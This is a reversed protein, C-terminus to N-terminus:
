VEERFFDLFEEGSEGFAFKNVDPHFAGDPNDFILDPLYRHIQEDVLLKRLRNCHMINPKKLGSLFHVWLSQTIEHNKMKDM